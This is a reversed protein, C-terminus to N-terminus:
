QVYCEELYKSILDDLVELMCIPTIRLERLQEAMKKVVSISQSIATSEETEIVNEYNSVDYKYVAIKFLPKTFDITNIFEKIIYYKLLFKNGEDNQFTNEGTYIEEKM